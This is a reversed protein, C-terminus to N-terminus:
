GPLCSNGSFQLPAPLSVSRAGNRCPRNEPTQPAQGLTQRWHSSLSVTFVGGHGERWDYSIFYAPEWGPPRPLLSPVAQVCSAKSELGVGIGKQHRLWTAPVQM